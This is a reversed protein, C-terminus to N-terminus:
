ITVALIVGHSIIIYDDTDRVPFGADIIDSAYVAAYDDTLAWEETIYEVTQPPLAIRRAGHTAVDDGILVVRASESTIRDIVTSYTGGGDTWAHLHADDRGNRWNTHVTM